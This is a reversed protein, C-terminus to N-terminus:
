LFIKKESIMSKEFLFRNKDDIISKKGMNKGIISKKVLVKNKLYIRIKAFFIRKQLL